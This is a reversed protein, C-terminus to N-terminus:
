LGKPRPYHRNVWDLFKGVAEEQNVAFAVFGWRECINRRGYIHGAVKNFRMGINMGSVIYSVALVSDSSGVQVLDAATIVRTHGLKSSLTTMLSKMRKNSRFM